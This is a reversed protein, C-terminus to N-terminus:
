KDKDADAKLWKYVNLLQMAKAKWIDTYDTEIYDWKGNRPFWAVGLKDVKIGFQELMFAYIATQLFVKNKSMKSTTKKDLLVLKGDIEVLGDFTGAVGFTPHLLRTETAIYKPQRFEVFKKYNEFMTKLIPDNRDDMEFGMIDFQETQDHFYSGMESAYYFGIRELLEQPADDIFEFLKGTGLYDKDMALGFERIPEIVEQIGNEIAQTITAKYVYKIERLHDIGKVLALANKMITTTSVLVEGTETNSYQHKVQDFSILQNMKKNLEVIKTKLEDNIM